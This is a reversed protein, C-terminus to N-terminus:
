RVFMAANRRSFPVAISGGSVTISPGGLLDKMVTGDPISLDSPVVVDVTRATDGRNLAIIM